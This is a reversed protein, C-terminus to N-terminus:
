KTQEELRHKLDMLLSRWQGACDRMPASGPHKGTQVYRLENEIMMIADALTENLRDTM